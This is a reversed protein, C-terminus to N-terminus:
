GELVSQLGTVAFVRRVIGSAGVVRVRCGRAIAEERASLLAALGAADLFTLEALDVELTSCAAAGMAHRATPAAVLDLEGRFRVVEVDGRQEAKASFPAAPEETRAVVGSPSGPNRRGADYLRVRHLRDCTRSLTLVRTLPDEPAVGARAQEPPALADALRLWAGDGTVSGDRHVTVSVLAADIEGVLLAYRADDGHHRCRAIPTM